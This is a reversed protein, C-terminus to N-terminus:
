LRDADEGEPLRLIESMKQWSVVWFIALVACKGLVM